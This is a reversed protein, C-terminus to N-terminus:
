PTSSAGPSRAGHTRLPASGGPAPPGTFHLAGAGGSVDELSKATVCIGPGSGLRHHLKSQSPHSSTSQLWTCVLLQQPSSPLYKVRETPQRGWWCACRSGRGHKESSQAGRVCRPSCQSAAATAPLNPVVGATPIRPNQSNLDLSQLRYRSLLGSAPFGPQSPRLPQAAPGLPEIRRQWGQTEM